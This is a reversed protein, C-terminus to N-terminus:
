GRRVRLVVAVVVNIIMLMVPGFLMGLGATSRGPAVYVDFFLMVMACCGLGYLVAVVKPARRFEDLQGLIIFPWGVLSCMVLAVLLEGVGELQPRDRFVLFLNALFLGIGTVTSLTLVGPKVSERKPDTENM